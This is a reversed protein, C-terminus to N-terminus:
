FVISREEPTYTYWTSNIYTELALFTAPMERAKKLAVASFIKVREEKSDYYLYGALERCTFAKEKHKEIELLVEQLKM